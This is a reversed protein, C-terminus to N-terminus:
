EMPDLKSKAVETLTEADWVSWWTSGESVPEVLGLRGEKEIASAVADEQTDFSGCFDYLGKRPYCRYGGFALYRKLSSKEIM